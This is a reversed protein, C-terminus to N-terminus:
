LHRLIIRAKLSILKWKREGETNDPQRQKRSPRVASDSRRNLRYRLIRKPFLANGSSSVRVLSMLTDGQDIRLVPIVKWLRRLAVVTSIEYV